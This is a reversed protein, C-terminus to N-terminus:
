AQFEKILLQLSNRAYFGKWRGRDPPRTCVLMHQSFVRGGFWSPQCIYYFYVQRGLRVEANM